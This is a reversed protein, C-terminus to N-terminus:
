GTKGCLCRTKGAIFIDRINTIGRGAGKPIQQMAIGTKWITKSSSIRGSATGSPNWSTRMKGDEDIKAKLYTSILKRTKRFMIIAELVPEDPYKKELARLAKEDTTVKNDKYVKPFSMKHYLLQVMQPHSSPNIEEKAITNIKSQWEKLIAEQEVILEQRRENNIDIGESQADALALALLHKHNFYYDTMGAAKLNDEIIYSCVYTVISDMSNYHWESMDDETVKDSWYNPYDTYMSCQFDLSMPLESYLEHHAHMTDLYHNNIIMKLNDQILPADFSISNQGVKEISSNTFLKNIADLVLMEDYTNWYATATESGGSSIKLVGKNITYGEHNQFKIFPICIAKPCKVSGTAFSMCRIHKGVTEIDFAVRKSVTEFWELVDTVTPKLLIDTPPETYGYVLSHRKAKSADLEFIPHFSYQRLVASPHYTAIIKTGLTPIVIGRHRYLSRKNTLARLPEAGLALVLNPKIKKVKEQLSFWSEKLIPKPVQRKGDEYFYGFNNSPPRTDMINTVYCNNFSIGVHNLMQKLLKGSSGVFPTGTKAEEVGPAEGVLMIKASFSGCDAVKM